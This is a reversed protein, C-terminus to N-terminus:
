LRDVDVAGRHADVGGVGPRQEELEYEDRRRCAYATWSTATTAAAALLSTQPAGGDSVQCMVAQTNQDVFVRVALGSGSSQPLSFGAVNMGGATLTSRMLVMITFGGYSVEAALESSSYLLKETTEAITVSLQPDPATGNLQVAGSVAASSSPLSLQMGGDPGWSQLYASGDVTTTAIDSARDFTVFKRPLPSGQVTADCPSIGGASASDSFLCNQLQQMEETTQAFEFLALHKLDWPTCGSMAPDHKGIAATTFTVDPLHTRDSAWTAHQSAGSASALSTGTWVDLIYEAPIVRFTQTVFVSTPIAGNTTQTFYRTGNAILSIITCTCAHMYVIQVSYTADANQLILIPQSAGSSLIRFTITVTLGGHHHFRVTHASPSTLYQCTTGDRPELHMYNVGSAANAFAPTTGTEASPEFWVTGCQHYSAQDQLFTFMVLVDLPDAPLTCASLTRGPRSLSSLHASPVVTGFTHSSTVPLFTLALLFKAVFATHVSCAHM